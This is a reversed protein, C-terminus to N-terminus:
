KKFLDELKSKAQGKGGEKDKTKQTDRFVFYECFNSKEKDLVREAQTERCHNCNGPDYFYCNLCVHLDAGCYLCTEQRGIKRVIELEKRCKFCTKM